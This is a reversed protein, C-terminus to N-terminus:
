PAAHREDRIFTLQARRMPAAMLRLMNPSIHAGADARAARMLRPTACACPACCIVDCVPTINLDPMAYRRRCARRFPAADLMTASADFFRCLMPTAIMLAAIIAFLLPPTHCHYADFPRAQSFTAFAYIAHRFLPPLRLSRLVYYDAFILILPTIAYYHCCFLSLWAIVDAPAAVRAHRRQARLMARQAADRRGSIAYRCGLVSAFMARLCQTARLAM